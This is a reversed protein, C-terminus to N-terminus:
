PACPCPCTPGISSVNRRWWVGFFTASSRGVVLRLWSRLSWVLVYGPWLWPWLLAVVVVLAVLAVLAVLVLFVFLGVIAVLAVLALLAVLAVLRTQGLLM